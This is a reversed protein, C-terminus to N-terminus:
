YQNSVHLVWSVWCHLNLVGGKLCQSSGPFHTRVFLHSANPILDQGAPLFSVREQQVTWPTYMPVVTKSSLKAPGPFVLVRIRCGLLEIKFLHELSSNM